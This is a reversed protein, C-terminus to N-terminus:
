VSILGVYGAFLVLLGSIFYAAAVITPEKIGYRRLHHHFTATRLLRSYANCSHKKTKFLPVQLAVSTAELFFLGSSIFLPLFMGSCAAMAALAGGLALSGTDGMLISAKYRNQFLFGVCAGAMSSGFVALDSCIPLVVISMGTFALAAIGGALGDLEDTLKVGDAMSLFSISTFFLYFSRVCVLGIPAPLPVM